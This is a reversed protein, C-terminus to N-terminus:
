KKAPFDLPSYVSPPDRTMGIKVLDNEKCVLTLAWRAREGQVYDKIDPFIKRIEQAHSAFNPGRDM